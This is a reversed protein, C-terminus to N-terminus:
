LRLFIRVAPSAGRRRLRKEWNDATDAALAKTVVALVEERHATREAM